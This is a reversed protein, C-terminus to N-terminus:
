LQRGLRRHLGITKKRRARYLHNEAYITPRTPDLARVLDGLRRYAARNQSENGMGWLIVSPHNRDRTILGRMQRCANTLWRGRRVSKWTAIEAYVLIGLEDCADLFAPHQPYHSLRVFNLGADRIARADMRHLAPPLARGFGPIDEHRNVGRLELRKGNLFFGRDPVFRADRIGFRVRVRDIIDEGIQLTGEAIYLHPRDPSWRKPKPVSMELSSPGSEAARDHGEAVRNGDPDFIRWKTEERVTDGPPSPRRIAYEIRLRAEQEAAVPSHVFLTEQDIHTAPFSVLRVTGSLGGYLLFDPDPLGPLIHNPCRNTLRFALVNEAGFALRHTVDFSVGLYQGNVRGIRNGNLWADGTGYFGKTEIRWRAPPREPPPREVTFRLRYSGAGRYYAIGEAFTDTTNWCHPLAVPETGPPDPARGEAWRRSM